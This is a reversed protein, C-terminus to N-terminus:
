HPGGAVPRPSIGYSVFRTLEMVLDQPSRYLSLAKKDTLLEAMKKSFLMLFEPNFDNRFLGKTQAERFDNLIANWAEATKSEVYTKLRPETAGYFDQLFDASIHHTSELKLQIMKRVKEEAPSGDTLIARFSELGAAVEREFVRKALEIKNSFFRYFTM